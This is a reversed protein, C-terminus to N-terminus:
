ALGVVDKRYPALMAQVDPDFKRVMIVGIDGFGAAGLPSQYRKFNRSATLICAQEIPKPVTLGFGFQATVKVATEGSSAVPFLYDGVAVLRSIPFSLGSSTRNLPELQVDTTAWTEDYVGDISSSTKVAIATGAVDDITCARTSDASYYRDESSTAYFHRQCHGDILRSSSEIAIEIMTDDVADSIELASKVTSLTAYGNVIAM